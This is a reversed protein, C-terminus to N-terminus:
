GIGRMKLDGRRKPNGGDVEDGVVWAPRHGSGQFWAVMRAATEPRTAFSTEEGLGAAHCRDPDSAWSRPIYLERDVAANGRKGVYGLYVAVHANEIGGATGTYPRHIRM